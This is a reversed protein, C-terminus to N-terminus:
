EAVVASKEFKTENPSQYNFYHVLTAEYDSLIAEKLEVPTIDLANAIDKLNKLPVNCLGREVNSFFQGNKYGLLISLENQSYRKPHNVRKEKILKAINKFTRM